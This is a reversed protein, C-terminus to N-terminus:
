RPHGLAVIALPQEDDALPLLRRLAADDFAGVLTAGLGLVVAQLLLNQAAAGVEMAVYRDSRAGYRAATRSARAVIVVVAPADGVWRQDRTSSGLAARLDGVAQRGLHHSPPDYRYAGAPLGDVRGAVLWLSLPYLGGASPATRLGRAADSVGQAAWLLQGADALALPRDSFQRVSRRQALSRELATTGDTRPAPLVFVAEAAPPAATAQVGSATLLGALGALAFARWRARLAGL